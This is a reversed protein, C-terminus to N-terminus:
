PARVIECVATVSKSPVLLLADTLSVGIRMTADLAALIERSRELPMEGYGPSRRPALREGEALTLRIEAELEDMLREVADLGVRQAFYADAASVAALRRQWQDFESGISACLYARSGVRKWLKRPAIPAVAALERQRSLAAGEGVM